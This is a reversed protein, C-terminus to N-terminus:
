YNSWGGVESEINHVLHTTFMYELPTAEQRIINRRRVSGGCM